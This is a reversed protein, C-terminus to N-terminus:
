FMRRPLSREATRNRNQRRDLYDEPPRKQWGRPWPTGRADRRWPRGPYPPRARIQASHGTAVSHPPPPPLSSPSAVSGEGEGEGWPLPHDLNSIVPHRRTNEHCSGSTEDSVVQHPIQQLVSVPHARYVGVRRLVVRAGRMLEIRQVEPAPIFAQDRRKSYALEVMQRSVHPTDAVDRGIVSLDGAVVDQDVGMHQLRRAEIAHLAEEEGTRGADVRM